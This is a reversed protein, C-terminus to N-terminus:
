NSYHLIFLRTDCQYKAIYFHYFSHLFYKKEHFFLRKQGIKNRSTARKTSSQNSRRFFKKPLVLNKDYSQLHNRFLFIPIM